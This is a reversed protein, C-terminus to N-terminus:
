AHAYTHFLTNERLYTYTYTRMGTPLDPCKLTDSLLAEWAGVVKASTDALTFDMFSNCLLLIEVNRKNLMGHEDSLFSQNLAQSVLSKSDRNDKGQSSGVQELPVRRSDLVNLLVKMCDRLDQINLMQQGTKPDLSHFFGFDLLTGITKAIETVFEQQFSSAIKAAESKNPALGVEGTWSSISSMQKLLNTKGQKAFDVFEFSDEDRDECLLAVLLNKLERVQQTREDSVGTSSSGEICDDSSNLHSLGSWVHTHINVNLQHFPDCDVYITRILRCCRSRLSWPVTPLRMVAILTPM